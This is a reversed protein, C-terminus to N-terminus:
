PDVEFEPDWGIEKKRELEALMARFEARMLPYRVRYARRHIQYIIRAVEGAPMVERTDGIPQRYLVYRRAGGLRMGPHFYEFDFPIAGRRRVLARLWQNDRSVEGLVMALTSHGARRADDRFAEVLRSRVIRGIGHRREGAAVTLYFIFGANIGQLYVGTITGVVRQDPLVAALLHYDTTTLLDLRKEEIESCLEITPPRDRADFASEILALAAVALPSREDTVEVVEATTQVSM